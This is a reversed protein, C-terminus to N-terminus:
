ARRRPCFGRAGAGGTDRRGGGDQDHAKSFASGGMEAECARGVVAGRCLGTDAVQTLGVQTARRAGAATAMNMIAARPPPSTTAWTWWRRASIARVASQTWAEHRQCVEGAIATAAEDAVIDTSNGLDIMTRTFDVLYDNQIGLQGANAMVEAINAPLPPSRTHVDTKTASDSLADISRRPPTWLKACRPSRPSM